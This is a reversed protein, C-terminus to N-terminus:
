ANARESRELLRPSFRHLQAHNAKASHAGIHDLPRHLSPVVQV